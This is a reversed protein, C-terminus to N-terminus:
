LGCQALADDLADSAGTKTNYCNRAHGTKHTSLAAKANEVGGGGGGFLRLEGNVLSVPANSVKGISGNAGNEIAFTCSRPSQLSFRKLLLM